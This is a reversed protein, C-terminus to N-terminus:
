NVVIPVDVVPAFAPQPGDVFPFQFLCSTFISIMHTMNARIHIIHFYTFPAREDLSMRGM